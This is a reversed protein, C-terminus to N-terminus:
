SGPTAGATLSVHLGGAFTLRLQVFADVARLAFRAGGIVNLGLRKRDTGAEGVLCVGLGGYPSLPLGPAGAAYLADANVQWRDSGGPPWGELSVVGRAASGDSEAIGQVGAFPAGTTLDVGAYGGGTAEPMSARQTFRNLLAALLAAGLPKIM